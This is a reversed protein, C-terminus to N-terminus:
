RSPSPLAGPAAHRLSAPLALLVTPTLCITRYAISGPGQSGGAGRLGMVILGVGSNAALAAIEEAPQGSSVLIETRAGRPLESRLASLRARVTDVSLGTPLGHELGLATPLIVHALVLPVGLSEAIGAAVHADRSSLPGFDSPAMVAAIDRIELRNDFSHLASASAPVVLVPIDTYHLVDETTSGLATRRYGSMGHTGVVLLDAGERRAMRLITEATTGSDVRLEYDTTGPLGPPLAAHVFSRLRARLCDLRSPDAKADQGEAIATVILRARFHESVAAAHRLAARSYDSLDVACLISPRSSM